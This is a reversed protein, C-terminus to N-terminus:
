AKYQHQYDKVFVCNKGSRKAMYLAEDARKFLENAEERRNKKWYSVGCSVTVPPNTEQRVKVVLRNAITVGTTLPVKPLYIALEEGGWRAGIDHERINQKIINAVQVIIDDGTQHGYTDNISKFNDIDILIFTGFADVEMSKKLQEDLYHRSYLKTLYDTIVMSELEERLMANAFALTSHHILSQLLKFMEFTFHYPERHLVIAMGRLMGNQVMPVAMVSHYQPASVFNVKADGLFVMDRETRLRKAVFEIYKKAQRSQFFPTSGPLLRKKEQDFLLFGIEEAGFSRKIQSVMFELADQLRLNANLRHMTENILQLDAVLRRSQEYLKANELASGATNALLSIFNIESKPFEMIHSAIIEIVGYVGQAGKIPAYLISRQLSLSDELQIKGTLFAQMAAMNEDEQEFMLTKIPLREHYPHDDSLFLYYTFSPYVEQLTDIIEELVDEIKMSAHIKATFHHLREYRKEESLGRAIKKLKGFLYSFDTAMQELFAESPRQEKAYLLQLVGSFEESQQLLLQAVAFQETEEIHVREYPPSKQLEIDPFLSCSETKTTVEPYFTKEVPDFLFLTVDEIMLEQKLLLFLQLMTQSFQGYDDYSLLWDFFKEKFAAYKEKEHVKMM